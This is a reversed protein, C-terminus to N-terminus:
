AAHAEHRGDGSRASICATLEHAQQRSMRVELDAREARRAVRAAAETLHV